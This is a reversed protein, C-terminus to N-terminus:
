DNAENISTTPRALTMLVALTAHLKVKALGRVKLNDLKAFEKLRM